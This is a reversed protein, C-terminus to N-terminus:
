AAVRPRLGCLRQSCRAAELGTVSRDCQGCFTRAPDVFEALESDADFLSFPPRLGPGQDVMKARQTMFSTWQRVHADDNRADGTHCGILAHIKGALDPDREMRGQTRRVANIITSHDRGGMLRGIRPYTLDPFRQRLIFCTAQRPIMIDKARNGGVMRAESVGFAEACLRRIRRKPCLEMKISQHQDM